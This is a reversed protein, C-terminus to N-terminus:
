CVPMYYKDSSYIIDVNSYSSNMQHSTTSSSDNLSQNNNDIFLYNDM